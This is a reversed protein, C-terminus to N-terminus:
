YHHHSCNEEIGHYYAEMYKEIREWTLFTIWEDNSKIETLRCMPCTRIDQDNEKSYIWEM